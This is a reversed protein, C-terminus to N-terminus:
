CTHIDDEMNDTMLLTLVPTEFGRGVPWKQGVFGWFRAWSQIDIILQNEEQRDKTKQKNM